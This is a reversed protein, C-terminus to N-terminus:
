KASQSIVFIVTAFSAAISATEKLFESMDFPEKKEKLAVKIQDGENVKPDWWFRKIGADVRGNARTILVSKRDADKVFGGVRDIYYMSKKGPIYKLLGPTQLAGSLSVVMPNNPITIIDGPRLVIDDKASNSKLAKHLDFIVRQGGRTFRAGEEFAESSMGGARKILDSLMEDKNKLYYEGPFNVEGSLTVTRQLQWNPHRM